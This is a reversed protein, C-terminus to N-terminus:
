KNNIKNIMEKAKNYTSLQNKIKSQNNKEYWNNHNKIWTKLRRNTSWTKQMQFKTKGKLNTELWYELFDEKHKDTTDFAKVEELLKSIGKNNSYTINNNNSYTINNNDILKNKCPSTDININTKNVLTIYRTEIEKSGEKYIVSRKIYNKDELVKLWKQISVRSVEYLDAFYRTPATCKGNMNILSSLEAYLLKANPTLDKDYRVNAPIISYYNPKNM